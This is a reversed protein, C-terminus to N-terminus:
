YKYGVILSVQAIEPFDCCQVVYHHTVIKSSGYFERLYFDTVQSAIAAKLLAIYDDGEGFWSMWVARGTTANVIMLSFRKTNSILINRGNRSTDAIVKQEGTALFNLWPFTTNLPKICVLNNFVKSIRFIYDKNPLFANFNKANLVFVDGEKLTGVGQIEVDLSPTINVSLNKGWIIWYGANKGSIQTDARICFGFALFYKEIYPWETTSFNYFEQFSGSGGTTASLAFTDNLNAINNPSIDTLAVIKGGGKLYEQILTNSDFDTFNVFVLVDYVKAAEVSTFNFPSVSFNVWRYNYYTPTLINRLYLVARGSCNACGIRIFPKPVGKVKVGFYVNKPLADELASIFKTTNNLMFAQTNTAKIVKWAATSIKFLDHYPCFTEISVNGLTLWISAALFLIAFSVELIYIFGKKM